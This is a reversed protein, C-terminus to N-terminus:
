AVNVSANLLGMGLILVSAEKSREASLIFRGFTLSRNNVLCLFYSSSSVRGPSKYIDTCLVVKRCDSRIEGRIQRQIGGNGKVSIKHEGTGPHTFLEVHISVEGVSDDVGSGLPFCPRHYIVAESRLDFCHGQTRSSAPVSRGGSVSAM